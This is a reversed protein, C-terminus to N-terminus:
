QRGLTKDAVYRPGGIIMVAGMFGLVGALIWLGILLTPVLPWISTATIEPNLALVPYTASAGGLVIAAIAVDYRDKVSLHVWERRTRARRKGITFLIGAFAICASIYLYNSMVIENM